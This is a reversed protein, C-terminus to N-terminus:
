TVIRGVFISGHLRSTLCHVSGQCDKFEVVQSHFPHTETMSTMALLVVIRGAETKEQDAM